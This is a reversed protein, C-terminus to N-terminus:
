MMVYATVRWRESMVHGKVVVSLLQRMRESPWWQSPCNPRNWNSSEGIRLAEDDEDSVCVFGDKGRVSGSRCCLQGLCM